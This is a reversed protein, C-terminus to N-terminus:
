QLEDAELDRIQKTLKLHQEVNAELQEIVLKIESMPTEGSATLRELEKATREIRRQIDDAELRLQNVDTM